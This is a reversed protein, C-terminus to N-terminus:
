LFSNKRSSVPATTIPAVPSSWMRVSPKMRPGCWCIRLRKPRPTPATPRLPLIKGSVAKRVWLATSKTPLSMCWAPRVRRGRATWCFRPAWSTPPSSPRPTQSLAISTVKRRLTCLPTPNKTRLCLHFWPVIRSIARSSAIAVPRNRLCILSTPWIARM